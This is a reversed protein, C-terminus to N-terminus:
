RVIHVEATAAKAMQEDSRVVSLEAEVPVVENRAKELCEGLQKALSGVYPETVISGHHGPVEHTELEGVVFEKWGLTPDPYIGLPQHSARFLTVKGSYPKPKYSLGARWIQDELQIYSTPISGNGVASVYFRRVAKKLGNRVKRQYKVKTKNLKAIVYDAKEDANFARLMALHHQLRRTTTYFRARLGNNNPLLRPYDPTGTDLLALLAVKEGQSMLQQAMEFAGLGGFSSGGLFYPGTPQIKRIERIYYEAMEEVTSHGLQRGGLRRAQLGYFPQDTGLHKALDRYFLVNGGKAHVCFFIPKIGDPQIPVLSSEKEKWEEKRLIEALREITGAEFLTALPINKGFTEEVEVFMRVAILSHGGLEFFNDKIGIPQVGLIREWIGVLTSELEDRHEVFQDDGAVVSSPVPLAKKDIKGNPTLPIAALDVFASPIMYDPLTSKLFKRLDAVSAAAGTHCVFYATLQKEGPRDEKAVVVTEKISPHSALANEIEGLEIRFGRIKVQNDIRGLYEIEGTALYRVLDGTKYLRSAADTGFPDKVFREDTLEPRNFYGRALGDGGLYLEGACGVPVPQLHSDLIYAQTNSIPRGITERTTNRLTFTSYTTDESPGYLDYVKKVTKIEYLSRVLSTKLPEGALNITQVSAPIGNTRVLETIASPVTNILTVEAAAAAAPLHLINEVLIVTGGCSLPAFMEYVSLDFCVSTSALTGRLEEPNFVTAAWSLLAVASRHEIAVGKPKGTSGSTYIVYALNNPAIESICNDGSHESITDSHEDVYVAKAKSRDSRDALNKSTLLVSAQSDTLIHELRDKPYNPDLPVYAGGAKLIGLIAVIMEISRELCIGVLMEPRVGLSQLYHATQNARHNLERYTVRQEGFILAIAGPTEAAQEEFFHHICKERPWKVSTQNWEVLIQRLEYDTLIPIEAIKCEPDAAIKGLFYEFRRGLGEISEKEFRSPNYVFRCASDRLSYELTLDNDENASAENFQECVVVGVRFSFEKGHLLPFRAVLDRPYTLRQDVSDFEAKVSSHLDFFGKTRDVTFHFPLQSSALNAPAPMAEGIRVDTFGLDFEGTDNLRALFAGFASLVVTHAGISERQEEVVTLFEYPIHLRLSSYEDDAAMVIARAFPPGIPEASALKNVWYREHRCTAKYFEEALSATEASISSLRYLKTLNLSSLSVNEGDLDLIGSIRIEHDLSSVIFYDDGIENITGPESSSSGNLVEAKTVLFFKDNILIKPAGLPNPHGGFDLSRVLASIEEAPEDWRVIGGNRPRKFKAYFTREGLNQQQRTPRKVALDRVLQEFAVIAAEFCKTNLTFATDSTEITVKEQRLIDGADVQESIVHWTVAHEREGNMLAWSTAHTGAYRPLPGDHYNIALERPLQLLDEKLIHENVISFLFDFPKDSLENSDLDPPLVSVSNEAAWSILAQDATVIANITHGDRLLIEACRIPLSGAGIILCCFKDNNDAM